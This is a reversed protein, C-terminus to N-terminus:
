TLYDLMGKSHGIIASIIRNAGFFHQIVAHLDDASEGTTVMSSHVKVKVSFAHYFVIDVLFATHLTLLVMVSM